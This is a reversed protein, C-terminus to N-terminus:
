APRRGSAPATAQAFIPRKRCVVPTQRVGPSLPLLGMRQGEALFSPSICAAPRGRPRDRRDEQRATHRPAVVRRKREHESETNEKRYKLEFEEFTVHGAGAAPAPHVAGQALLLLRQLRGVALLQAAHDSRTTKQAVLGREVASIAKPILRCLDERYPRLLDSILVQTAEEARLTRVHRPGCGAERAIVATKKGQLTGGAVVRRKREHEFQSSTSM